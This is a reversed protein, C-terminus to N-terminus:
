ARPLVIRVDTGRGPTSSLRVEGHHRVAFAYVMSLGLGCGREYKTTFFPEFARKQVEESMGLGNDSVEIWVGVDDGGTRVIIRGGDPSAEISNALLNVLPGLLEAGRVRVPATEGLEATITIPASSSQTRALSLRIADRVIPEIAIPEAPTQEPTQRSVDRLLDITQMGHELSARMSGLIEATDADGRRLALMSIWLGLPALINRLDHAVGAAMQGLARLKYGRQLTAELAKRETVDLSLVILGEPCPNIRLEFWARQGDAYKFENELSAAVQDRLCRELLEFVPATEIGPYCELLTRGLLKERRKRGHAAAAENLYLYRWDPSLIQIGERLSELMGCLRSAELAFPVDGAHAVPADSELGDESRTSERQTKERAM